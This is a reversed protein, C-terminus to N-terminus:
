AHPKEPHFHERLFTEADIAAGHREQYERTQVAIAKSTEMLFLPIVHPPLGMAVIAIGSGLAKVVHGMEVAAEQDNTCKQTAHRLMARVQEEYDM